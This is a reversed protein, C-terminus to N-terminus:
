VDRSLDWEESLEKGDERDIGDIGDIWSAFIVLDDRQSPM